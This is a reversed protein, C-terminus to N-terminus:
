VISLEMKKRDVNVNTVEDFALLTPGRDLNLLTVYDVAIETSPKAVGVRMRVEYQLFPLFVAAMEDTLLFTDTVLSTRSLARKVEDQLGLSDILSRTATVFNVRSDAVSLSDIRNLLRVLLKSDTLAAVFDQMQKTLTLVKDARDTIQIADSLQLSKRGQLIKEDAMVIPDFLSRFYLQYKATGDTVILSDSLVKVSLKGTLAVFADVLLLTDSFWKLVQKNFVLNDGMVVSDSFARFRLLTDPASDQLTISDSLTKSTSANKAISDTLFLSEVLNKNRDVRKFYQDLLVLTESLNKTQTVGGGPIVFGDTTLLSDEAIMLLSSFRTEVDDLVILDAITTLETKQVWDVLIVGDNLARFIQSGRLVTAQYLDTLTMFETYNVIDYEIANTSTPYIVDTFNKTKVNAALKSATVVDTLQLYDSFFASWDRYVNTDKLTLADSLTRLITNAGFIAKTFADVMVVNDGLIKVRILAAGILDAMTLGDALTRNRYTTKDAEDVITLGESKLLFALKAKLLSDSAVISENLTLNRLATKVLSDALPALNDALNKTFTVGGAIVKTFADTLILQELQFRNLVLTKLNADTLVLSDAIFKNRLTGKLVQDTIVMVDSKTVANVVSGVKIFSDIATAAANAQTIWNRVSGVSSMALIEDLIKFQLFLPRGNIAQTNLPADNLIM